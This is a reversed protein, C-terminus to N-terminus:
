FNYVLRVYVVIWDLDTRLDSSKKSGDPKLVASWELSSRLTIPMKLQNSGDEGGKIGSADAANNELNTSLLWIIIVFFAVLILLFTIRQSGRLRGAFTNTTSPGGSSRAMTQVAPVFPDEHTEESERDHNDLLSYRVSEHTMNIGIELWKGDEHILRM